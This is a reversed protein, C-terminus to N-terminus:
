PTPGAGALLRLPELNAVRLISPGTEVLGRERLLRLAKAVAERTCGVAAALEHQALPLAITVVTGQTRGTREALEVLARCLRQLVTLSALARRERDASRLRQTLQGLVLATVHPRESLFRRFPDRPVVLGTTPSLTTVSASRPRGDLAAMEGILEGESRLGLILQGGRETAIWAACWGTLLLVLHSSREGETLLTEHAAFTRTTGLATLTGRDAPSLQPLFAQHEGFLGM